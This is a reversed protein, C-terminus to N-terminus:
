RVYRLGRWMLPASLADGGSSVASSWGGCGLRKLPPPAQTEGGGGLRM